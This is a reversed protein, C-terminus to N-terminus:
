RIVGASRTLVFGIVVVAVLAFDLVKHHIIFNEGKVLARHWFVAHRLLFISICVAALSSLAFASWATTSSALLHLRSVNRAEVPPAMATEKTSAAVPTSNEEAVQTESAPPQETPASAPTQQATPTPASPQVAAPTSPQTAPATGALVQPSAYEAVIITEPGTGQYNPANAFGFGVETYTTNLINARHGPSAMWGAIANSSTDFGYALNEGATQYQYGANTFFIWPPNGEPTNHSWYDRAAMDDAKAQAAQTLKDSLALSGLSNALRETNTDLLLQAISVDTAYGLVDKKASGWFSSLALGAAVILILPLYPWYTKLYPDSHKHHKGSRQKGGSKHHRKPKTALVM